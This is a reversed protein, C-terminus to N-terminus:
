HAMYGAPWVHSFSPSFLLGIVLRSLSCTEQLNGSYANNNSLQVLLLLKSSKFCDMIGHMALKNRLTRHVQHLAWHSQPTVCVYPDQPMWVRM